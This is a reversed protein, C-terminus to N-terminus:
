FEVTSETPADELDTLFEVKVTASATSPDSWTWVKASDPVFGAAKLAVEIRKANGSGDAIELDVQVDIDTTGVHALAAKSCVLDPVLGGLLVVEPITGYAHVWRVLAIELEGAERNRPENIM